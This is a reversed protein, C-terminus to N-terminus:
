NEFFEKIAALAAEEDSGSIEIILEDQQAAGLALIGLISKPDISVDEKMMKFDSEFHQCVKTLESAPRAHLGEEFPVTVIIKKM